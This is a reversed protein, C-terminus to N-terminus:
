SVWWSLKLQLLRGTSESEGPPHPLEEVIFVSAQVDQHLVEGKGLASDHSYKKKEEGVSLSVSQPPSGGASKVRRIRHLRYFFFFFFPFYFGAIADLFMNFTASECEQQDQTHEARCQRFPDCHRSLKIM